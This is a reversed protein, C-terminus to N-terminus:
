VLLGVRATITRIINYKLVNLYLKFFVLHCKTKKIKLWLESSESILIEHTRANTHTHARAHTHIHTHKYTYKLRTYYPVLVSFRSGHIWIRSREELPHRSKKSLCTYHTDTHTHTHINTHTHTNTHTRAIQTHTSIQINIYIYIYIHTHTHTHTHTYTNMSLYKFIM